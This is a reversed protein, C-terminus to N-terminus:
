GTVQGGLAKHCMPGKCFRESERPRSSCSMGHAGAVMEGRKRWLGEGRQRGKGEPAVNCDSERTQRLIHGIMKWRRIKVEESLPKMEDRKLLDETRIHDHWRVRLIRRLCKNNFVLHLAFEFRRHELKQEM